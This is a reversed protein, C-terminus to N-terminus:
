KGILVGNTMRGVTTEVIMNGEPDFHYKGMVGELVGLTTLNDKITDPTKKYLEMIQPIRVAMEYAFAADFNPPTGYRKKFEEEFRSGMANREFVYTPGAVHIGETEEKSLGTYLFGWGGVISVKERLGLETMQTFIPRYEFGYGLILLVSAGGDRLKTLQTRFDKSKIDYEEILAPKKFHENLFPRYIKTMAETWAAVSGHLVGVQTEPPLTKLYDVIARSEEEIGVYFRVTKKSKGALDSSMCFAIQLKDFRQAIPQVTISAGTTSTVVAEVGDVDMLKNSANAAEKNDGKGDEFLFKAPKAAAKLDEEALQIAQKEYQGMLALSGTEPLIVGIKIAAVGPAAPPPPEPPQKFVTWAIGGALFIALALLVIGNKSDM